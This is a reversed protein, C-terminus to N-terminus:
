TNIADSFEKEIVETRHHFIKQIDKKVFFNIVPSLFFPGPVKFRVKDIMVVGGEVPIFQHTHHWVRYPGKTSYDVFSENEKWDSIHTRWNLPIGHVKLKYDFITGQQIQATTQRVVKFNLWEPTIRELNKAEKFFQFAKESSIPLFHEKIFMDMPLDKKLTEWKGLNCLNDLAAQIDSYQFEFGISELSKPLVKQSDLIICSMEGFIIKLMLPPVPFLAPIKLARSFAKTFEKNTVPNPSVANFTGKFNHNLTLKILIETLDDVHVWSMWQKGFGIPGGGGLKFIPMLKSLAGSERGLVVGIRVISKSIENKLDGTAQEWQHCVDPLYGSGLPSSEDLTQNKQNAEYFGIASASTFSKVESGHNNVLRVLAKTTEVRSNLIRKKQEKSWRADAISEGALNIVGEVGSIAAEPIEKASLYDWEVWEVPLSTKEYARTRSRTLGVVQHGSCILKRVLNHGVFGTAGTVLIKM